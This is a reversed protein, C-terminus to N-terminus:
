GMEHIERVIRTAGSKRRQTTVTEEVGRGFSRSAARRPSQTGPQCCWTVLSSMVLRGSRTASTSWASGFTAGPQTWFNRVAHAVRVVRREESPAATTGTHKFHRVTSGRGAAVGESVSSARKPEHGAASLSDARSTAPAGCSSAAASLGAGVPPGRLPDAGRKRRLVVLLAVHDSLTPWIDTLRSFRECEVVDAGGHVFVRDYRGSNAGRRWTWEDDQVRHQEEAAFQLQADRWGEIWLCDEEGPRINFDGALVCAGRSDASEHQRSMQALQAARENTERM